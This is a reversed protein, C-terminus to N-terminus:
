LFHLIYKSATIYNCSKRKLQEPLIFTKRIFLNYLILM